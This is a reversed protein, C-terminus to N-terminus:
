SFGRVTTRMWTTREDKGDVERGRSEVKGGHGRVVVKAEELMNAVRSERVDVGASNEWRCLARQAVRECLCAIKIRLVKGRDHGEERASAQGERKKEREETRLV